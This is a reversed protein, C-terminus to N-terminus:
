LGTTDGLMRRGRTGIQTKSTRIKCISPPHLDFLLHYSFARTLWAHRTLADDSHRLIVKWIHYNTGM